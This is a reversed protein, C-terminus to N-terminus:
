LPRGELVSGWRDAVPATDQRGCKAESGARRRIDATDGCCMRKAYLREGAEVDPGRLTDSVVIPRRGGPVGHKAATSARRDYLGPDGQKGMAERIWGDMWGNVGSHM